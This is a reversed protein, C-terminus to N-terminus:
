PTEAPAPAPNVHIKCHKVKPFQAEIADHVEHAITHAEHLPLNGDASIELDVYIRDGFLRTKILDVGMVAKNASAVALMENVTADDCAKDTMKGTADIFVEVAVKLIFLCIVISAIPDLIPFALRAGLIGVFAGISSLADSRHHWADAKLAGSNIKKAAAITYQYMAEKAAISVVAAILAILGPAALHEYDGSLIVSIGAWGILTGASVLFGALLIAAVCEFREHGYQHDKDSKKNSMKIGIMVIVTSLVDSLSHVADSIIAGSGSVIGAFIKFITLITNGLLTNWSVRMALKEATTATLLTNGTKENTKTTKM